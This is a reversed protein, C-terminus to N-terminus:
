KYLESMFHRAKVIALVSPGLKSASPLPASMCRVTSVRTPNILESKAVIPDAAAWAAARALRAAPTANNAIHRQRNLRGRKWTTNNRPDIPANM